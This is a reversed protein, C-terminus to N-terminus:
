AGGLTTFVDEARARARDSTTVWGIALAAGCCIIAIIWAAGLSHAFAETVKIAEPAPLVHRSALSLLGSATSGTSVGLRGAFVSTVVSGLIAVGLVNGVQRCTSALASAVGAQAPPLGTVAATTIPPNVMGFGIGILVYGAALRLYASTPTVGILVAFGAAMLVTSAMVPIRPGRAGVVRGTLPSTIAQLATLPLLAVGTALAALGRAEQLYLTTLFLFGSIVFFALVALATAGALTPSRLYALPVLPESQRQEVMVFLLGLLLGVGLLLLTSGSTWGREPAEIVGYTFTGLGAIVLLQGAPDFRRARPSRTQPMVRVSAVLAIAIVPLNVWFVSRWGAAAVLFGGVVPGCAAAIGYVGGWVGIARAKEVRDTFVTSITSLASPQLMSAGFGQLMRFAVLMHPSTATSCLASATGFLLLGTQFVSRRGLRDAMSGSLLLFSAAMVTYGAVTWQLSSISAHLQHQITPLAVTVITSDIGTLFLSACCVGLVVWRRPHGAEPIPMGSHREAM